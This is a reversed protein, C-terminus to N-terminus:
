TNSRMVFKSPEDVWAKGVEKYLSAEMMIYALRRKGEGAKYTWQQGWEDEAKIDWLGGECAM